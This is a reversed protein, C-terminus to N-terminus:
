CPLYVKYVKSETNGQELEAPPISHTVVNKPPFPIHNKYQQM